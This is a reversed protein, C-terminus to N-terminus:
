QRCYAGILLPRLAGPLRARRGHPETTCRETVHTPSPSAARGVLDEPSPDWHQGLHQAPLFVAASCRYFESIRTLPAFSRSPFPFLLQWLGKPRQLAPLWIAEIVVPALAMVSQQHAHYFAVAQQFWRLWPNLRTPTSYGGLNDSQVADGRWAPPLDGCALADVAAMTDPNLLEVSDVRLSLIMETSAWIFTLYAEMAPLEVQVLHATPQQQLQTQQYQQRRLTSVRGQRPFPQRISESTHSVLAGVASSAKRKGWGIIMSERQQKQLQQISGSLSSKDPFEATLEELRQQASRLNTATKEVAKMGTNTNLSAPGLSISALSRLICSQEQAHQQQQLGVPVLNLELKEFLGSCPGLTTTVLAERLRLIRSILSADHEANHLDLTDFHLCWTLLERCQGTRVTGWLRSMYVLAALETLTKGQAEAAAAASPTSSQVLSSAGSTVTAAVVRQHLHLQLLRTVRDLEYQSAFLDTPISSAPDQLHVRFIAHFLWLAARIHQQEASNRQLATLISSAHRSLPAPRSPAVDKQQAKELKKKLKEAERREQESQLFADYHQRLTQPPELFLRQALVHRFDRSRVIRGPVLGQEYSRSLEEVLWLRFDHSTSKVDSLRAIQLRLANTTGLSPATMAGEVITWGPDMSVEKLRTVAAVDRASPDSTTKSPAAKDRYSWMSGGSLRATPDLGASMFGVSEAPIARRRACQRVSSSGAVALQSSDSLILLPTSFTANKAVTDLSPRIIGGGEEASGLLMTMVEEGLHIQIMEDVLKLPLSNFLCVHVQLQGLAGLNQRLWPPWQVNEPRPPSHPKSCPPARLHASDHIQSQCASKLYAKWDRDNVTMDDYLAQKFATRPVCNVEDDSHGGFGKHIKMFVALLEDDVRKRSDGSSTAETAIMGVAVVEDVFRRATQKVIDGNHELYHCTLSRGSCLRLLRDKVREVLAFRPSGLGASSEDEKDIDAIGLVLSLLYMRHLSTPLGALRQYIYSVTTAATVAAAEVHWRTRSDVAGAANQAGRAQPPLSRVLSEGLDAVVHCLPLHLSADLRAIGEEALIFARARHAYMQVRKRTENLGSLEQQMQARANRVALFDDLQTSIRDMSEEDYVGQHGTGSSIWAALVSATTSALGNSSTKAVEDSAACLSALSSRFLAEEKTKEASLKAQLSEIDSQVSVGTIRCFQTMFHNDLDRRTPTFDVVAFRSWTQVFV